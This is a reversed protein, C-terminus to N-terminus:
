VRIYTGLFANCEPCYHDANKCSDMVYPIIMCPICGVMCFMLACVHTRMTAQYEVKTTIRQQCSPCTMPSEKPGIFPGPGANVGVPVFNMNGQYMVAAPYTPQATVVTVPGGAPTTSSTNHMTTTPASAAPPLRTASGQYPPPRGRGLLDDDDEYDSGKYSM